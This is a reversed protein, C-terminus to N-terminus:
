NLEGFSILNSENDIILVQSPRLLSLLVDEVNGVSGYALTKPIKQNVISRAEFPASGLITIKYKHPSIFYNAAQGVTKISSPFIVRTETKLPEDLALTNFSISALILFIINKSITM